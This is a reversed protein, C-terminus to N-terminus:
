KAAPFRDLLKNTLDMCDNASTKPSCVVRVKYGDGMKEVDIMTGMPRRMAHHGKWHAGHHHQHMRHGDPAPNQPMDQALAVGTGAAIIAAAAASLLVKMGFEM